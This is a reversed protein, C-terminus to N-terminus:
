NIFNFKRLHKSLMYRVSEISLPKIMFDDFGASKSQYELMENFNATVAILPIRKRRQLHRFTEALNFGDVDPLQIDIFLIDFDERMIQQCARTGDSVIHIYCGLQKFLSYAALQAIRLDEVLLVKIQGKIM